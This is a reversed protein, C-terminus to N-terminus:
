VIGYLEGYDVAPKHNWYFLPNDGLYICVRCLLEASLSKGKKANNITMVTVGWEDALNQATHGNAAMTQTLKTGIATYDLMEKEGTTERAV